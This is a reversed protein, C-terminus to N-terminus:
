TPKLPLVMLEQDFYNEGVKLARRELGYVEFGLSLYLRKAAAQSTGVTLTVRELGPQSRAIDLLKTLLARGVGKARWGEKVYVGVILGKHRSKAGQNRLLSAIGVLQSDAFAGLMHYVGKM